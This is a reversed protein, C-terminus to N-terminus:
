QPMVNENSDIRGQTGHLKIKMDTIIKKKEKELKTLKNDKVIQQENKTKLTKM